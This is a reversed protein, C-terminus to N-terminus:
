LTATRSNYARWPGAAGILPSSLPIPRRPESLERSGYPRQEHRFHPERITEPHRPAPLVFRRRLNEFQYAKKQAVPLDRDHLSARQHEEGLGLAM